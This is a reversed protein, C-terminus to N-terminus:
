FLVHVANATIIQNIMETGGLCAM